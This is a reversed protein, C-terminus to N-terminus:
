HLPHRGRSIGASPISELLQQLGKRYEQVTREDGYRQNSIGSRITGSLIGTAVDKIASTVRAALDPQLRYVILGSVAKAEEFERAMESDDPHQSATDDLVQRFAWGAVVWNEEPKTSFAIAGM